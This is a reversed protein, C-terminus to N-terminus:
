ANSSVERVWDRQHKIKPEANVGWIQMLCDAIWQTRSEIKRMDWEDFVLLDKVMNIQSDKLGQADEAVKGTKKVAWTEDQISINLIFELLTKNGLFEVNSEYIEQQDEVKKVGPVIIDLWNKSSEPALHEVHLHSTNFSITGINNSMEENIRYLSYKILRNNDIPKILESKFIDDKPFKSLLLSSAAKLRNQKSESSHLLEAVGSRLINELIQANQRSWNWRMALADVIHILNKQEAGSLGNDNDLIALLAIRHSDQISNLGMIRTRYFSDEKNLEKWYNEPSLIKGYLAAKTIVDDLFSEAVKSRKLDSNASKANLLKEFEGFVASMRIPELTPEGTEESRKFSAPTYVLLYHRLFQDIRGESLSGEVQSWKKAVENSVKVAESASLSDSCAQMFMSKVLDAASLGLGRSNMTMYISISEELTTTKILLLQVRELIVDLLEVLVTLGGAYDVDHKMSRQLLADLYDSLQGYAKRLQRLDSSRQKLPERPKGQDPRRLISEKFAAGIKTNATFVDKKTKTGKVLARQVIDIPDYTGDETELTSNEKGFGIAKDRILALLMVFSTLRQQGDIVSIPEGEAHQMAVITGFFHKKDESELLFILDNWFDDINRQEWAYNRQFQPVVFRNNELLTSLKLSDPNVHISM